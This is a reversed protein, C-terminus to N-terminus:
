RRINLAPGDVAGRGREVLELRLGLHEFRADLNDVQKLRVHLASLDPHEPPGADALGDDDLFHDIPDGLLV